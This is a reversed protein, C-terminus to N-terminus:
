VSLRALLRQIWDPLHGKWDRAAEDAQPAPARLRARFSNSSAVEIVPEPV